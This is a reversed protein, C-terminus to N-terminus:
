SKKKKKKVKMGQGERTDERWLDGWQGLSFPDQVVPVIPM